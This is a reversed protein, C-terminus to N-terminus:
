IWKSVIKRKTLPINSFVFFVWCLAANTCISFFVRCQAFSKPLHKDKKADQTIQSCKSLVNLLIM